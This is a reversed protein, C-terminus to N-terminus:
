AESRNEVKTPVYWQGPGQKFHRILYSVLVKEFPDSEARIPSSVSSGVEQPTYHAATSSIHNFSHPTVSLIHPNQPSSTVEDEEGAIVPGVTDRRDAEVIEEGTGMLRSREDDCPDEAHVFTFETPLEIWSATRDQSGSALDQQEDHNPRKRKSKPTLVIEQSRFISREGYICDRSAKICKECSPESEDCKLKRRKCTLSYSRILYNQNM